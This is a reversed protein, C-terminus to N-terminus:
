SFYQINYVGLLFALTQVTLAIGAFVFLKNFVKLREGETPSYISDYAGLLYAGSSSLPSVATAYAGIGVAAVMAQSSLGAFAAQLNPITPIMTPMVVANASSVTSMLGSIVAMIPPALVKNSVMVILSSLLTVGGMAKAVGVLLSMGGIMILMSFPIKQIVKNADAFGVLILIVGVVIASFVQDISFFMNMAIYAVYGLITAIHAPTAKVVKMQSFDRPKEKHWGFVFYMGLFIVACVFTSSIAINWSNVGLGSESAISRLIIGPPAFTALGGAQMTLMGIACVKLVDMGLEFAIGALLPLILSYIGMGCYEAIVMLIFVFVPFLRITKGCSIRIVKQSIFELTGNTQAVCILVQVSLLRLFLSTSFGGVFDSVKMKTIVALVCAMAFGVIGVNIKRVNAIVVTVVISLLAVVAFITTM